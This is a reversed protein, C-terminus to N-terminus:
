GKNLFPCLTKQLSSSRIGQGLSYIGGSRNVYPSSELELFTTNNKLLLYQVFDMFITIGLTIYLRLSRKCILEILALSIIYRYKKHYKYNCINGGPSLVSM